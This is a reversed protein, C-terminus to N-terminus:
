KKKKSVGKKKPASKKKPANKMINLKEATKRDMTEFKKDIEPFSVKAMKNTGKRLEM